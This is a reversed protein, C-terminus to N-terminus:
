RIQSIVKDAKLNMNSLAQVVLCADVVKSVNELSTENLEKLKSLMELVTQQKRM